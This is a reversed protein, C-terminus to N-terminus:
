LMEKFEVGPAYRGFVENGRQELIHLAEPQLQGRDNRDQTVVVIEAGDQRYYVIAKEHQEVIRQAAERLKRTSPETFM